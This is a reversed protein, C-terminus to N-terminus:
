YQSVPKSQLAFFHPKGSRWKGYQGETNYGKQLTLGSEGANLISGCAIAAGNKVLEPRSRFGSRSISAGMISGSTISRSCALMTPHAEVRAVLLGLV